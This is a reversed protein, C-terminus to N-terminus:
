LKTDKGIITCHLHQDRPLPRECMMHFEHWIIPASYNVWAPLPKRITLDVQDGPEFDGSMRLAALVILATLM